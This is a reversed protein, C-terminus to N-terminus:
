GVSGDCGGDPCTVTTGKSNDCPEFAGTFAGKDNLVHNAM